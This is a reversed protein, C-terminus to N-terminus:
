RLQVAAIAAQGLALGGDNAPVLHHLFCKFGNSELLIITKQLLTMNQWVGGSLIVDSLQQHRRIDQCLGTVMAAIGNHFRASIRPVGIGARLDVIVNQFLETPDIIDGDQDFSYLGEEHPDALAEFEIAAQAEYNVIQRVGSLASVADFLRGMSSTPPANVGSQIQRRLATLAINGEDRGSIHDVSPLDQDWKLGAQYLWSLAMRWPEKIAKDGGPLPTYKLHYAREYGQFNAILVEGGWIAGDEGYGTGDFSIGIVPRDEPLNHEAACSVIHAHHHQVGIAPIDENRARELAYRTALYNPHLDYAIAEPKIRFLRELHDIGDEFAKLTEYNEMDGIHHSLFAYRKKTLCFANKLEAGAALIPPADMALKIPFPAYGRSRRLPYVPGRNGKTTYVGNTQIVRM